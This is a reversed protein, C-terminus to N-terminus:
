GYARRSRWWKENEMEEGGGGEEWGVKFGIPGVVWIQSFLLDPLPALAHPVATSNGSYSTWTIAVLIQHVLSLM